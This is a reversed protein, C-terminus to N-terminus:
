IHVSCRMGLLVFGRPVGCKLPASVKALATFGSVQLFCCLGLVFTGLCIFTDCFIFICVFSLVLFYVLFVALFPFGM